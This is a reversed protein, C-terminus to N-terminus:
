KECIQKYYYDIDEKTDAIIDFLLYNKYLLLGTEYKNKLPFLKKATCYGKTFKKKIATQYIFTIATDQFLFRNSFRLTLLQGEKMRFINNNGARADYLSTLSTNDESYTSSYASGIPVIIRIDNIKILNHQFLGYKDNILFLIILLIFGYFFINKM